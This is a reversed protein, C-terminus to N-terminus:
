SAEPGDGGREFITEPEQGLPEEKNSHEHYEDRGISIEIACERCFQIDDSQSDKGGITLLHLIKSVTDPYVYLRTQALNKEGGKTRQDIAFVGQPETRVWSHMTAVQMPMTGANLAALYIALNQDVAALERERNKAYRKRRREYEDTTQRVTWM